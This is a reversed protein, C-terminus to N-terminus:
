NLSQLMVRLVESTRSKSTFIILSTNSPIKNRLINVLNAERVSSPVFIYQQLLNEPTKQTLSSHNTYKFMKSSQKGLDEIEETMTATFLLTQRGKPLKEFITQLNPMFAATLLRDAEDLVLYKIRNLVVNGSNIHDALRGPTCVLIHPRQNLQLGQQM